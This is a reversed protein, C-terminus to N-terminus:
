MDLDIEDDGLLEDVEEQYQTIADKLDNQYVRWKRAISNIGVGPIKGHDRLYEQPM